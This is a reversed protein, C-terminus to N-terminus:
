WEQWNNMGDRDADAFDASGDTPLWVALAM